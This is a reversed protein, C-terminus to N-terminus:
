VNWTKCTKIDFQPTYSLIQGQICWSWADHRISPSTHCPISVTFCMCMCRRYVHVEGKGSCRFSSFQFIHFNYSCFDWKYIRYQYANFTDLTNVTDFIRRDSAQSPLRIEPQWRFYTQTGWVLRGGSINSFALVKFEHKSSFSYITYIHFIHTRCNGNTETLGVVSALSSLFSM